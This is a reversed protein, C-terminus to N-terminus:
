ISKHNDLTEHRPIQTTLRHVPLSSMSKWRRMLVRIKFYLMRRQQKPMPSIVSHDGQHLSRFRIALERLPLSQFEDPFPQIYAWCDILMKKAIAYAGSAFFAACLADIAPVDPNFGNKIMQQFVKLAREPNGCRGYGNILITYILVNPELGVEGMSRLVAEAQDMDGSLAYGEILASYHYETAHIGRSLLIRFANEASEPDAKIVADRRIRLAFTAADSKVRQSSLPEVVSRFLSQYGMHRPLQLGATPDFPDSTGTVRREPYSQIQIRRLHSLRGAAVNWGSGYLLYKDYRLMCSLISHLHRSSPTIGCSFLQRLARLILRPRINEKKRIYSVFIESTASDPSVGTIRMAKLIISMAKMGYLQLVNELLANFIPASPLIDTCEIPLQLDHIKPVLPAFITWLAKERHCADAVLRVAADVYGMSAYAHILSITVASSPKVGNMVMARLVDTIDEVGGHDTLYNIIIAYTSANPMLPREFPPTPPHSTPSSNSDVMGVSRRNRSIASVLVQTSVPTFYILLRLVGSIDHCDLRLQILSNLVAVSSADDMSELAQLAHSEVHIDSGLPRYNTALLAHTSPDPPFGAEGMQHLCYRARVMDSNRLHGTLVLHYTRRNPKLAHVKFEDLIDHLPGYRELELLSRSKWNLLRSTTRGTQQMGLSVVDLIYLWQKSNALRFCVCEYVNQKLRCGLKLILTLFQLADVPETSALVEAAELVNDADALYNSIHPSTRFKWLKRSEKGRGSLISQILSLVSPYKVDSHVGLNPPVPSNVVQTAPQNPCTRHPAVAIDALCRQLSPHHIFPARFISLSLRLLQSYYSHALVFRRLM